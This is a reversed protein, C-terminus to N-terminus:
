MFAIMPEVEREQNRVAGDLAMISAVAMDIKERSRRKSPKLNGAADSECIVNSFCWRLAPNEPFIIRKELILKELEKTPPSMSAFGQGFAIVTMDKKELEQVIRAAGWRDFLIAKIDYQKALEDIKRLIFGYDVVAGPTSEIFGQKEWLQYPVRDTKSRERIADAPCWAFSILYFPEDEEIPGFCLSLASLDQTSSLDLGGYCPRGTLDPIEGVCEDFSSSSIWRGAADVRQNLYLARFVAEQQPLKQAKKAFERMEELSRFDGLAPNCDHWVQEDWPDADDPATYVCGYFTFDPPLSGEEIQLAYDILETLVHNPDASQTSIVIGLPEARAGTGTQLNDFLERSKSQALEDFVYFSPSLGHAKRADSSLATYVSGNELDTIEKHFNKIHCRDNFEPIRVIIAVMENFLISAQARDSAASYIQGREEAEPGLLHCLGLAACLATKGNKRPLTIVAQRVLRKNKKTRYIARIIKKQWPRLKLKRGAHVGATIPLCECFRIVRSARTLGKKEWPPQGEWAPKQKASQAAAIKPGRKGM